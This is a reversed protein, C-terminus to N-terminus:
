LATIERLDEPHKWSAILIDEFDSETEGNGINGNNDTVEFPVAGTFNWKEGDWGGNTLTITETDGKAFVISVAKTSM